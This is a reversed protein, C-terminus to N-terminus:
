FLGGTVIGGPAGMTALLGTRSIWLTYRPPLEMGPLGGDPLFCDEATCAMPAQCKGASWICYSGPRLRVDSSLWGPAVSPGLCTAETMFSPCPARRCFIFSERDVDSTPRTQSNRFCRRANLSYEFSGCGPIHTCLRGCEEASEVFLNYGRGFQDGGHVHGTIREYGAPCVIRTTDDSEAVATMRPQRVEADAMVYTNNPTTNSVVDMASTVAFVLREQEPTWVVRPGAILAASVVDALADKMKFTLEYATAMESVNDSASSFHVEGIAIAEGHTANANDSATGNSATAHDCGTGHLTGNKKCATSKVPPPRALAPRSHRLAAFSVEEEVGAPESSANTSTATAVSSGCLGCSRPCWARVLRGFGESECLRWMQACSTNFSAWRSDDDVCPPEGVSSSLGAAPGSAVDSDAAVKTTYVGSADSLCFTVAAAVFLIGMRLIGDPSLKTESSPEGSPVPQAPSAQAL